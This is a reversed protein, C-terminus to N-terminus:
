IAELLSRRFNIGRMRRARAETVAESNSRSKTISLASHSHCYSSGDMRQQGCFTFPGDGDPYRCHEIELEVLSIGLPIADACRMEIPIGDIPAVRMQTSRKRIKKVKPRAKM